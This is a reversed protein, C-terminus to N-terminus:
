VCVCMLKPHYLVDVHKCCTSIKVARPNPTGPGSGASCDRLRSAPRRERAATSAHVATPVEPRLKSPSDAAVSAVSAEVARRPRLPRWRLARTRAAAWAPCVSPVAWRPVPVDNPSASRASGSSTVRSKRTRWSSGFRRCCGSWCSTWTTTSESPPKSLSATTSPPWRNARM